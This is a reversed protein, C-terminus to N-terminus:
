ERGNLKNYEEKYYEDEWIIIPPGNPYADYPISKSTPKELELLKKLCYLRRIIPHRISKYETRSLQKWKWEIQLASKWEPINTLYCIRKWEKDNELHSTTYKAGGVIEGNHQRLRRDIDKTSGVYSYKDDLSLLYCYNM